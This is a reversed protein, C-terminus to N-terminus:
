KWDFNWFPHNIRLKDRYSVVRQIQCLVMEIVHKLFGLLTYKCKQEQWSNYVIFSLCVAFMRTSPNATAVRLQIGDTAKFINEINWRQRYIERIEIWKKKKLNTLFGWEHKEFKGLVLTTMVKNKFLYEYSKWESYIGYIKKMYRSIKARIIFPVKQQQLKEVLEANYFGRDFLVCDFNIKRHIQAATEVMFDIYKERRQLAKVRLVRHKDGYVLAFVLYKYSGTDGNKPKYRHIYRRYEKEKSSCKAYLKKLLYGTYSDYTEDITLYCRMRRLKKRNQHLFAKGQSWFYTELQPITTTLRYFFTDENPTGAVSTISRGEEAATILLLLLTTITFVVNPAESFNKHAFSKM